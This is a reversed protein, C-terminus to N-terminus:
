QRIYNRRLSVNNSPRCRGAVSKLPRLLVNSYDRVHLLAQREERSMHNYADGLV